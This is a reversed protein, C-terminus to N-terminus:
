VDTSQNNYEIEILRVRELYRAEAQSKERQFLDEAERVGDEYRANIELCQQQYRKEISEKDKNRFLAIDLDRELLAQCSKWDKEM